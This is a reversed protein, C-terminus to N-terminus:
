RARLYVKVNTGEDAENQMAANSSTTTTSDSSSSNTLDLRHKRMPTAVNGVGSSMTESHAKTNEHINNTQDWSHNLETDDTADQQDASPEELEKPKPEDDVNQENAFATHPESSQV